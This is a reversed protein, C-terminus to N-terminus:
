LKINQRKPTRKRKKPRLLRDWLLGKFGLARMAKEMDSGNSPPFIRTIDRKFSETILEALEDKDIGPSHYYTPSLLPNDLNIIKEELAIKEIHTNPLVRIGQFVFVISKKLQAINELGEKATHLNEGPGGMIIFHAQALELDACHNSFNLVEAFDFPKRMARLTADSASDTGLELAYLGAEKLFQLEERSTNSPRFYGSWRIPLSLNKIAEAVAIYNGEHDNFVSDCFVFDNIGHDKYMIEMQEAIMEPPRHRLVKGEINPYSCYACKYPCGRKSQIGVVGAKDHYFKTIEPDLYPSPIDKGAIPESSYVKQELDTQWSNERLLNLLAVMAVEGEGEIVFDAGIFNRIKDAMLSVGAGGIIIPVDYYQRITACISKAQQLYWKDLGQHSDVDDINRISLGIVNPKFDLHSKVMDELQLESAQLDAQLVDYGHLKLAGAIQALGMPFVPYPSTALNCNILLIKSM